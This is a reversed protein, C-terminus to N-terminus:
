REPRWAWVRLLMDSPRFGNCPTLDQPCASVAVVLDRCVEFLIFDGPRSRPVQTVIRGDADLTNNMFLNVAEPLRGPDVEPFDQLALRLNDLCNPHDSLGFDRQYRERDCCPVLIDHQGVADEVITLLPQRRNSYLSDGVRLRISALCSRTHAPSLYEGPDDACIAILDGVQEGELDVVELYQGKQVRLARATRAPIRVEEVLHTPTSSM